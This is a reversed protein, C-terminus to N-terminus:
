AFKAELEEQKSLQNGYCIDMWLNWCKDVLDTCVVYYDSILHNTRIRSYHKHEQCKLDRSGCQRRGNHNSFLLIHLIISSRSALTVSSSTAVFTLIHWDTYWCRCGTCSSLFGMQCRGMPLSCRRETGFVLHSVILMFKVTSSGSNSETIAMTSGTDLVTYKMGVWVITLM